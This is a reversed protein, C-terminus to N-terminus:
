AIETLSIRRPERIADQYRRSSDEGVVVCPYLPVVRLVIRVGVAPAASVKFRRGGREFWVAGAEPTAEEYASTEVEMAALPETEFGIRVSPAFRSLPAGAPPTLLHPALPWPLWWETLVGDGLYGLPVHKWVAFTHPGPFALRADVAEALGGLNRYDLTITVWRRIVPEGPEPALRQERMGGYVMRVNGVMEAESIEWSEAGAGVLHLGDLTPPTSAGATALNM